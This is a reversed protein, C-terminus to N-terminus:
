HNSIPREEVEASSHSDEELVTEQQTEKKRLKKQKNELTEAGLSEEPQDKEPNLFDKELRSAEDHSRGVNINLKAIIDVNLKVEVQHIGIYKIPLPINVQIRNLSIKSKEYIAKVIDRSTVSGYLRGDEGSQRILVVFIENIQKFTKESEQKKIISEKEIESKKSSVFEKNEKTAILAKKQPILYNRAFGGKVSVIDGIDGSGKLKELLIVEM